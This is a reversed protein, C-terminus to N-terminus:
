DGKKSQLSEQLIVSTTTIKKQIDVKKRSESRGGIYLLVTLAIFVFAIGGYFIDIKNKSHVNNLWLVKTPSEESIRNGLAAEPFTSKLSEEVTAGQKVAGMLLPHYWKRDMFYFLLCIVVSAGSLLMALPLDLGSIYVKEKISLGIGGVFASLILIAYNRVKMELENFHKQVDIITKWIEIRLKVDDDVNPM